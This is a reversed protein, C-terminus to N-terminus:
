AAFNEVLGISSIGTRRIRRLCADLRGPSSNRLDVVTVVANIMGQEGMSTVLSRTSGMHGMDVIVLDFSQSLEHLMFAIRNDDSALEDRNIPNVLPLLTVQDDISHVAVEELSMQNLMATKWDQEIDLNTQVSLTPNEIDGDLIAVNLGHSGALMALCCAVTTRGEGGSPSTVALVQLGEQCASILNQAVRELNESRRKLLESCVAPWQLADVEWVPNFIKLRAKRLGEEAARAADVKAQSGVSDPSGQPESSDPVDLSSESSTRQKDVLDETSLDDASLDEGISEVLDQESPSEVNRRSEESSYSPRDLRFIEGHERRETALNTVARSVEDFTLAPAIPSELEKATSKDAPVEAQDKDLSVEGRVAPQTANGVSAPADPLAPKADDNSQGFDSAPSNLADVKRTNSQSENVESPESSEERSAPQAPILVDKIDGSQPESATSAPAKPSIPAYSKTVVATDEQVQDAVPRTASENVLANAAAQFIEAPKASSKTPEREVAHDGTTRQTTTSSDLSRPAPDSERPLRHGQNTYNPFVGLVDFHEQWLGQGLYDTAELEQTEGVAAPAESEEQTADPIPAPRHLTNAPPADAAARRVPRALAPGAALPTAVRPRASANLIHPPPIFVTATDVRVILPNSDDPLETSQPKASRATREKSYARIFAENLSKSM